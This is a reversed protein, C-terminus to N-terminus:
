DLSLSKSIMLKSAVQDAQGTGDMKLNSLLDTVTVIISFMIVYVIIM